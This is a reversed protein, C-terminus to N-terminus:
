LLCLRRARGPSIVDKWCHDEFDSMIMIATERCRRKYWRLARRGRGKKRARWRCGAVQHWSSTPPAEIDLRETAPSLRFRPRCHATRYAACLTSRGATGAAARSKQAAVGSDHDSPRRSWEPARRSRLEQEQHRALDKDKGDLDQPAERAEQDGRARCARNKEATAVHKVHQDPKKASAVHKSTSAIRARSRPTTGPPMNSTSWRSPSVVADAKPAAPNAPTAMTKGPETKTSSAALVPAASVSTAILAIAPKRFM